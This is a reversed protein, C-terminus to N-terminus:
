DADLGLWARAEDANRFVRVEDLQEDLMEFMRALGFLLDSPAFMARRAGAGWPNTRALERIVEPAITTEEVDSFDAFQRFGPDFERDTRLRQQHDILDEDTLRGWLRTVVLGRAVDITYTAPM